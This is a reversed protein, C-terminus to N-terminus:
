IMYRVWEFSGCLPEKKLERIYREGQIKEFFERLEKRRKKSLKKM